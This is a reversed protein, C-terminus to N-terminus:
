EGWEGEIILNFGGEVMRQIDEFFLRESLSMEKITIRHYNLFQQHLTKSLYERDELSFRKNETM